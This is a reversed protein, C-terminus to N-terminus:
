DTFVFGFFLRICKLACSASRALQTDRHVDPTQVKVVWIPNTPIATVAGQHAHDHASLQLSFIIRVQKPPFLLYQFLLYQSASLPRDPANVTTRRKLQNYSCSRLNLNSRALPSSSM